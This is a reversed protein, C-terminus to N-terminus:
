IHLGFGALVPRVQDWLWQGYFGEFVKVKLVIEFVTYYIGSAIVTILLSKGFNVRAQLTLFLLLFIPIAVWFGFAVIGGILGLFFAWVTLERRLEGQEPLTEEKPMHQHAVEFEVKRGTAKAIEAEARAFENGGGASQRRPEALDLLIQVICLAIAPLGIVLPQFRAAEPYSFAIVVMTVFIALMVVGMFVSPVKM